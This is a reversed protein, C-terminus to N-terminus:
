QHWPARRQQEPSVQLVTEDAAVPSRASAATRPDLNWRVAQDRVAGVGIEAVRHIEPVEDEHQTQRDRERRPEGDRKEYEVGPPEVHADQAVLFPQHRSEAVGIESVFRPHPAPNGKHESTLPESPFAHAEGESGKRNRACGAGTSGAAMAVM